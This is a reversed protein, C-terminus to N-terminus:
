KFPMKVVRALVKNDRIKIFIDTGVKSFSTKVYGMGIGKQLSPSQTGSTVKGIAIGANDVIEYDHRPIGREIMEFGVLKREVGNQKQAALNASNVFNKSFKTIWGLGAELPSTTDDIDNGYLCFGM